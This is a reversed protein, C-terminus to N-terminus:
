KFKFDDFAGTLTNYVWHVEIGGPSTDMMKVWGDSAPWRPDGMNINPIQTGGAPNMFVQDRMLQEELNAPMSRGTSGKGLPMACNHVLSESPGVFFTHAAEVTLDWLIGAYPHRVVSVVVISGTSTKIRAGPWLDGAEVWGAELTYFPHDPTTTVSGNELELYATEDDAHPLVATVSREVVQGTIEDWALVVDGVKISSIPAPGEPTAVLTERTFSCGAKAAEDLWRSGGIADDIHDATRGARVALGGGTVFPIFLSAVDAGLAVANAEREKEPGFILSAIDYVIFAADLLTDIVRGSPDRKTVPNNGVYAYRNQSQPASPVGAWSDRSLFRGLDPDYYRTRLYILGTTDRLEGTFGFPQSSSGSGGTQRGWDDGTYTAVTVGAADTLARTSGLVDPHYVEISSGSVAYALGLGYVYKRSGDDMTAALDGVGDFVYRTAPSAGVQRSFRRGDGDYVYNETTGAVAASTLRNAQDFSFTESGKATLNGNANITVSLAGATMLRDARDYGYNTTTGDVRTLRNGVPDYTYSRSGASGVSATLRSLRDYTYTIQSAPTGSAPIQTEAWSVQAERGQGGGTSSPRFRLRLDAYNTIAAAQTPTLTLTGLQWGSGTVGPINNHTQAAIVTTGQRLEVTLNITKGSNNGSKAYRYRFTIGTTTSPPDVDSLSVEYFHSTTPSTPSAIFNADNATVENISAFTGVWTGSSSALGDPRAFQTALSGNATTLINGLGDLTYFFRDIQQGSARLHRIDILRRANDYAYNTTSLNPHVAQKLRNDPWYQYTVQRSAWDSLATMQSAKNFTYSVSTGDPYILKTRNGDLDFRYGVAKPGPTTVSTPRDAEDYVYATTGTGDVMSIRNGNDDYGLAVDPTGPNSYDVSTRRGLADFGVTTTQGLPDLITTANGTADYGFVTVLPGSTSPWAPYQTETRPLGRGDYVYEVVREYAVDGKARTIRTPNGGADRAYETTIVQAPPSSPNTWALPSEKVQALSNREDYAYTTVQGNADIQVVPNGVEDYRTETVLEAGGAAPAPLRVFRVRDENDYGITTTHEAPIGGAANGVADVVSTKRGVADYAYSTKNGLADTVDKLMGSSAGSTFYTMVTAYTYDPSGATNGRPPIFRTVRGPNAADGYEYKTVATKAGTDPDTFRSTVSLLFVGSADYANDVSFMSNIAALNTSCTVTSGSPVGRPSVTQVLNNKADYRLLSVSRDAGPQPAAEIRRTLNAAGGAIPSGAYDVDYCSDVRNGRADTASLQNGIADYTYSQTLTEAASPHVVRGTLWGQSNYSDVVTPHFAPEFSTFPTTTTTVRSGDPNVVYDLTTLEGTLVGRGDKQTAVRGQADYTNSLVVKNRANTITAIRHSTGDYAYTTVKGERDTVTQLRGSGDYGYNVSRAPSAWDSIRTLLGNTYTLTLVGRAAPDSVTSLRGSTDYTLNSADGFRDRIQSLRGGADFNWVSLDKDTATYTGDANQVLTRHVGAPPVFSSGSKVYRDSRGEPGVLVIDDTGPGPSVLRINYSHTWGPGMTTVRTDNSNYSRAFTVAPGRGPIEADVHTYSFAGTFGSVPDGVAQGHIYPPNFETDPPPAVKPLIPADSFIFDDFSITTPVALEAGVAPSTYDNQDWTDSTADRTILWGSPETLSSPWVKLRAQDGWAHVFKVTYWTDAVWDSKTVAPSSASGQGGLLAGGLAPDSSINLLVYSAMPWGGPSGVMMFWVGTADTSPVTSVKFKATWTFSPQRWPGSGSLAIMTGGGLSDPGSSGGLDTTAVWKGVSGDVSAIWSLPTLFSQWQHGYTSTGWDADNSVTRNFNDYTVTPAAPPLAAQVTPQRVNAAAASEFGTPVVGLSAAVLLLSLLGALRSRHATREMWGAPRSGRASM